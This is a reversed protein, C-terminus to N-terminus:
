ADEPEERLRLVAADRGPEGARRRRREPPHHQRPFLHRLDLYGDFGNESLVSSVPSRHPLLPQRDPQLCAPFDAAVGAVINGAQPHIRHVARSMFLAMVTNPSGDIMRAYKMLSDTSMSFQFVYKNGQPDSEVPLRFVGETRPPLSFAEGDPKYDLLPDRFEAAPIESGALRLGAAGSDTDTLYLWYYHLLTRIFPLIGRGDTIAHCFSINIVSGAASVRLLYGNNRGPELTPADADGYVSFPADNEELVLEEGRRALKVRFYPYLGIATDLARQLVPRDIEADMRFRLQAFNSYTDTMSYFLCQSSWLEEM